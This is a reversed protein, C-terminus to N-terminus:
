AGMPAARKLSVVEVRRTFGKLRLGASPRASVGDPLTEALDAAALVQGPRARDCLRAALNVSRGVYDDGELMIVPGAAIGARLPLRAQGTTRAEIHMVADILPVTDVGVLMVGDGLWKDVRVGCRRAVDRVTSRLLGLEEVAEDDGHTDVFDTFGCLDLFAFTRMLRTSAAVDHDLEPGLDAAPHHM